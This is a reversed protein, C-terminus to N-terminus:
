YNRKQKDFIEVFHCDKKFCSLTKKETAKQHEQNRTKTYEGGITDHDENLKLWRFHTLMPFGEAEKEENVGQM